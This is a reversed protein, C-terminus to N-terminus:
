PQVEHPDLVTSLLFREGDHALAIITATRFGSFRLPAPYNLDRVLAEV